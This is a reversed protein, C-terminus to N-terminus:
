CISFVNWYTETDTCENIHKNTPLTHRKIHYVSRAGEKSSQTHSHQRTMSKETCNIVYVKENKGKAKIM